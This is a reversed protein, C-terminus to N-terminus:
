HYSCKENCNSSLYYFVYGKPTGFVVRCKVFHYYRNPAFTRTQNLLDLYGRLLSKVYTSFRTVVM